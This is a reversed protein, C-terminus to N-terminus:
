YDGESAVVEPRKDSVPMHRFPQRPSVGSAEPTIVKTEYRVGPSAPKRVFGSRLLEVAISDECDFEQGAIVTGYAGTLQSSVCVLRM